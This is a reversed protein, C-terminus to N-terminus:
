RAPRIAEFHRVSLIGACHFMVAIRRGAAQFFRELAAALAVPDTVNLTEAVCNGPGLASKLSDLGAADMDYAGVFWGQSAFLQATARGIGAAAGTIFISPREM